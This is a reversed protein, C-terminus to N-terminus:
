RGPDLLDATIASDLCADAQRAKKVVSMSGALYPERQEPDVTVHGALIVMPASRKRLGRTDVCRGYGGLRRHVHLRAQDPEAALVPFSVGVQSCWATAVAEWHLKVGPPM